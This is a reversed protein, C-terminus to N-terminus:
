FGCCVAKFENINAPYIINNSYQDMYDYLNNFLIKNPFIVLRLLSIARGGNGSIIGLAASSMGVTLINQDVQILDGPIGAPVVYNALELLKNSCGLRPHAKLYICFGANKLIDIIKIHVPIYDGVISEDDKSLLLLVKKENMSGLRYGYKLNITNLLSINQIEGNIERIRNPNYEYILIDEGGRNYISCSINFFIKYLMSKVLSIASNSRTYGCIVKNDYHNYHYVRAKAFDSLKQVLYFTIYDFTKSFFYCTLESKCILDALKLYKSRIYFKVQFWSKYDFYSINMYPIYLVDVWDFVTDFYDKLSLVNIVIFLVRRKESEPMMEYLGIAHRIDAPAQVFILTNKLKM